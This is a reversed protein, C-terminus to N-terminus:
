ALGVKKEFEVPGLYVITSHKRTTNCFREIDDLATVAADAFAAVVLFGDSMRM